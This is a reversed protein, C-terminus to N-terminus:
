RGERARLEFEDALTGDPRVARAVLRDGRVDVHVFNLTSEAAATLDSRGVTTTKCGGGSVVYTTDHLPRTREYHHDHGALVLDVAHRRLIPEPM